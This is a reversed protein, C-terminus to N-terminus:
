VLVMHTELLNQLWFMWRAAWKRAGRAAAGTEEVWANNAPNVDLALTRRPDVEARTVRPRGVYRFRTWRYRGDWRENRTSGDAFHVLVEVPLRVGGLRRVEVTSDFLEHPRDAPEPARVARGDPGDVYGEVERPPESKVSVAYDCLESSYWTEDFFWRWDKGTVDNVVDIFDASTPHGFRHRRAYTRMIRTMTEEGVLGELTQLSLAPKGYSNLTYAEVTRYNWGPRAMEDTQGHRRLASLDGEGRGIRVGPAVVPWGGRTGRGPVSVGFYRRGWGAPGYFLRLAKEDHYSNFGEDLWAQEFENNAVALYWFQHGCEHVTVAEPSQLAPPAWVNAGGTFLTPYEMGGSASGWAPDVVTVQKYPYPASWAGYSRLAVRTAEIYRQALHAHEPQLLLRIDVPPYGADEFRAKHDLFRRSATWTFDHVDDQVFRFTETGDPNAKKEQLAGTAGVVFGRPLTLRVDYTGFDSHFETWPYFPHANWMGDQIVGVKPFWQAIFHYDHVWGARAVDGYPIRATWEIRFRAEGGPAIAFPTTVEMVTRDDTNPPGQGPAAVDLAPPFRLSPMLDTETRGLLKVSTVDIWGFGRGPDGGRTMRAARRGEGRASASLTNRFANWYLHFPFAQVTVRSVNRWRLELTGQITHADPDLRADISYNANRPSTAPLPPLGKDALPPLLPRPPPLPERASAAPLVALLPTALVWRLAPRM